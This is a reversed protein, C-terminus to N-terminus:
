ATRGTRYRTASAEPILCYWRRDHRGEAQGVVTRWEDTGGWSRGNEERAVFSAQVLLQYRAGEGTCCAQQVVQLAAPFICRTMDGRENAQPIRVPQVLPNDEDERCEYDEEPKGPLQRM